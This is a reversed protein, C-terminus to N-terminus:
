DGGPSSSPVIKLTLGGRILFLTSDELDTRGRTLLLTSDELDTGRTLFLTSDELDTRGRTLLLTSDELDTGRTLLSGDGPSTDSSPAM